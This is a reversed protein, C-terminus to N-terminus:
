DDDEEYHGDVIENWEHDGGCPCPGSKPKGYGYLFGANPQRTPIVAGCKACQWVTVYTSM